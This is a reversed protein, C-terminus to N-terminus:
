NAQITLQPAGAAKDTTDALTMLVLLFTLVSKSRLDRNDIWYWLAGYRVAVFPNDPRAPGSAIQILPPLADQGAPAPSLPPFAASKQAQEQPLNIYASLESLVQMGSRTQMAVTNDDGSAGSGYVIQFDPKDPNLKLVRRIAQRDAEIDPSLESRSFTLVSGEQKTEKDVQTRFGIADSDQVRQLSRVLQVFEPDAPRRRGSNRSNSVGNISQVAVPLLTEASYGSQLLEMLRIPPIPTMLVRIFNSGTLPVYTITPKDVYTGGGFLNLFTGQSANPFITGSAGGTAQLAYGSIIQGVDVFLPTDAYRLKVINLLTQQKWSEAVATTYDLRDRDVTGPGISACAALALAVMLLGVRAALAMMFMGARAAFLLFRTVVSAGRPLNM